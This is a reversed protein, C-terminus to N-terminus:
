AEAFRTSDPSPLQTPSAPARSAPRRSRLRSRRTRELDTGLREGYSEGDLPMDVPADDVFADHESACFSDTGYFLPPKPTDCM